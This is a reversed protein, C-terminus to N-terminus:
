AAIEQVPAETWCHTLLAADFADVQYRGSIDQIEAAVEAPVVPPKAVAAAAVTAWKERPETAIIAKVLSHAVSEQAETLPGKVSYRKRLAKEVEAALAESERLCEGFTRMSFADSADEASAKSTGIPSSKRTGSQPTKSTGAPRGNPGAAKDDKQGGILPQYLGKDRAKKFAEQGAEMEHADPMVGTEIAEIVQPGTLIGIQGLQTV